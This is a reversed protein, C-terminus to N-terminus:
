TSDDALKDAHAALAQQAETHSFGRRLLFNLRRAKAKELETYAAQRTAFDATDPVPPLPKFKRQLLDTATEQFDHPVSTESTEQAGETLAALAAAAVETAVGKARLEQAIRQRGWRSVEARYRARGRAYAADDLLQHEHLRSLTETIDAAVYGKRALATQMEQVAYARRGLLKLAADFCPVAM